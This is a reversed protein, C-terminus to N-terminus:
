VWYGCRSFLGEVPVPFEETDIELQNAPAYREGCVTDHNILRDLEALTRPDLQLDVGPLWQLLHDARTTGPIPVLRPHTTLLWALALAAPQCGQKRALEAFVKYLKLNEAYHDPQFRPMSRRIDEQHLQEFADIAGALFGRGLPSFAVFTVGLEDCAKLAAIEPNRTWLSYESQLAAIPHVAHARRLTTASVESLGLTKVKGQRILDAMAGVCDEVPVKPDLRHLYLLDIVDTKLRRLSAECSAQITEPRGDIVRHGNVGHMGCKSALVIQQRHAALAEGVLEENLGFGYLAATDYLTIGADVAAGLVALAQSRSPSAGYAHSLNMCGLGLASVQFPGIRRLKM